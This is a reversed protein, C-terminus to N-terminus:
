EYKEAGYKFDHIGEILFEYAKGEKQLEEGITIAEVVSFAPICHITHREAPGFLHVNYYKAQYLVGDIMRTKM